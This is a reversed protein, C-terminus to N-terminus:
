TCVFTFFYRGRRGVLVVATKTLFFFVVATWCTGERVDDVGGIRRKVEMLVAMEVLTTAEEGYIVRRALSRVELCWARHVTAEQITADAPVSVGLIAVKLRPEVPSWRATMGIWPLLRFGDFSPFSFRAATRDGDMNWPHFLANTLEGMTVVRRCRRGKKRIGWWILEGRRSGLAYSTSTADLTNSVISLFLSSM